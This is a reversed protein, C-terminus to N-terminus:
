SWLHFTVKQSDKRRDLSTPPDNGGPSDAPLREVEGILCAVGHPLRMASGGVVHKLYSFIRLKEIVKEKRIVLSILFCQVEVTKM